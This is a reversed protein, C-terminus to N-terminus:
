SEKLQVFKNNERDFIGGNEIPILKQQATELEDFEGMASIGGAFKFVIFQKKAKKIEDM